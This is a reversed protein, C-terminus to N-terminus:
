MGPDCHPLPQTSPVRGRACGCVLHPKINRKELKISSVSDVSSLRKIQKPATKYSIEGTKINASAGSENSKWTSNGASRQDLVDVTRLALAQRDREDLHQGIMKGAFLGVAGGIAAGLWKKNGGAISAGLLAGGVGGLTAGLNEKSIDGMTGECGTVFSALIAVSILPKNSM